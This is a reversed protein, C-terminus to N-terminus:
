ERPPLALGNARRFSEDTFHSYFERYIGSNRGHASLDQLYSTLSGDMIDRQFPFRMESVPSVQESIFETAEKRIDKYPSLEMIESLHTEGILLNFLNEQILGKRELVSLELYERDFVERFHTVNVTTDFAERVLREYDGQHNQPPINYYHQGELLRIRHYIDAENAAAIQARYTALSEESSPLSPSESSSEMAPLGDSGNDFFSILSFDMDMPHQGIAFVLAM